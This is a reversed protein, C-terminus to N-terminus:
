YNKLITHHSDIFRAQYQNKFLTNRHFTKIQWVIVAINCYKKWIWGCNYKRLFYIVLRFFCTFLMNNRLKTYHYILIWNKKLATYRHIENILILIVLNKQLISKKNDEILLYLYLNISYYSSKIKLSMIQNTKYRFRM